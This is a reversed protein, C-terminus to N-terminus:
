DQNWKALFRDLHRKMVADLDTPDYYTSDPDRALLPGFHPTYEVKNLIVRNICKVTVLGDAIPRGFLALNSIISERTLERREPIRRLSIGYVNELPIRGSRLLTFYSPYVLGDFGCKRAARAIARCIEYSHGGALFLMHVAMDLSEFESVNEGSLVDALDLLKLERTPALTAIYLEDDATVRCEHLCVELDQSGYLIPLESTEFRGRAPREGPPADYEGFDDPNLPAQRLRYFSEDGSLIRTPYETVIRSIVEERSEVTQLAKLPEVEGIMWLRPAYYFFGVQLAGELLRLDRDLWGAVNISTTRHKNIQVTPSAGYRARRITGWVFFQQALSALLRRNLKIGLRSGCNPCSSMDRQGIRMSSLRLGEDHFCDSCLLPVGSEDGESLTEIHAGQGQLVYQAATQMRKDRGATPPEESNAASAEVFLAEMDATARLIFDCSLDLSVAMYGKDVDSEEGRGRNDEGTRYYALPSIDAHSSIFGLFARGALDLVGMRDIVQGHNLISESNGRRLTKRLRTPLHSYYQNSSLKARLDDALAEFGRIDKSDSGVNRFYNLRETCDRLQMVILRAQAEDEAVTETGLYFLLLCARVLNRVLPALSTFDWFAGTLNAPSGPCMHLIGTAAACVRVFLVSAWYQRDSVAPRSSARHSVNVAHDLAAVYRPLVTWYHENASSPSPDESESM